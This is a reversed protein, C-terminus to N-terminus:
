GLMSPKVKYRLFLTSPCRLHKRLKQQSRRSRSRSFFPVESFLFRLFIYGILLVLHLCHGGTSEDGLVGSGYNAPKM